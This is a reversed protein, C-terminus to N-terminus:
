PRTESLDQREFFRPLFGENASLMERLLGDLQPPELTAELLPDATMAQRLLTEDGTLAAFMTLGQVRAHHALVTALGEPILGIGLAHVGEANVMAPVEVAASSPLNAVLGDNMVNVIFLDGRDDIISEMLEAVIIRDDEPGHPLDALRHHGGDGRWGLAIQEWSRAREAQVDMDFIRTDYRMALGQARGRYPDELRQLQPFFEAWHNSCYPIVGFTNIAWRVIDHQTRDRILPIADRGDRLQLSMIATCHNIGGVKLPLVVEAESVGVLEAIWSRRLPWPSCSCLSLSRVSPTQAMAMANASAPNTYNLIFAAPALEAVDHAVSAVVPTNRLARFIGGPGISDAIHMFVGYRGPIEIDNAWADMGGVAVTVIVFDVGRLAERQDTTSSVMLKRGEATALEVALEEMVGARAADVDMLRLEAGDFCPIEILRRVLGPVFMSSGGGIVAIKVTM